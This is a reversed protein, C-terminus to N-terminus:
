KAELAERAVKRADAVCDGRFNFEWAEIIRLAKTLAANEALLRAKEATLRAIVIDEYSKM